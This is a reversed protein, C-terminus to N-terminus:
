PGIRTTTFEFHCPFAWFKYICSVENTLKLPTNAKRSPTLSTLKQRSQVGEELM